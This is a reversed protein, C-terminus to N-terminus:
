NPALSAIAEVLDEKLAENGDLAYGLFLLIGKKAPPADTALAVAHAPKGAVTAEEYDQRSFPIGHLTTEHAATKTAGLSMHLKERATALMSKAERESKAGMLIYAARDGKAFGIVLSGQSVWEWGPPVKIKTGYGDVEVWTDDTATGKKVNDSAPGDDGALQSKASRESSSHKCAIPLALAVVALSAFLLRPTM